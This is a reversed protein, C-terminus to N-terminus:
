RSYRCPLCAHVSFIEQVTRARKQQVFYGARSEVFGITLKLKRTSHRVTAVKAIFLECVGSQLHKNRIEALGGV